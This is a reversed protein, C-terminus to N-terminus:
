GVVPDEIIEVAFAPEVLQHGARAVVIRFSTLYHCDQLAQGSDPAAAKAADLSQRAGMVDGIIAQTLAIQRYAVAMTPEDSIQAAM